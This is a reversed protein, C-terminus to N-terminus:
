EGNPTGVTSQDALLLSVPGGDTSAVGSVHVNRGLVSERLQSTVGEISTGDDIISDRVEIGRLVCEEGVAVAPGITCDEIVCDAGVLCPGNIKSRVVRAGTAVTVDGEIVSEGDVDGDIRHEAHELFFRNAGLLAEPSGADAWFGDTVHCEVREGAQVLYDIADTIELEGRASPEISDVAEWIEPGFGYVGVIALDSPPVKPKEVLRVVVGDEVVVVGFARPDEVPKVILSAAADSAMFDQAFETVGDGLLDDGLYMLFREDHGIQGRACALAHALGLPDPQVCFSAAVSWRSGDGVFEQLAVETPSVVFVADDVGADALSSLVRDLVARGAVPLLHKPRCYTLPRLRTGQGACLLVAKM